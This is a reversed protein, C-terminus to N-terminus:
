RFPEFKMKDLIRSMRSPAKYVEPWREKCYEVGFQDEVRKRQEPNNAMAHAAALNARRMAIVDDHSFPSVSGSSDTERRFISM